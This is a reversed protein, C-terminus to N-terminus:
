AKLSPHTLTHTHIHGQSLYLICYAFVFYKPFYKLISYNSLLGLLMKLFGKAPKSFM